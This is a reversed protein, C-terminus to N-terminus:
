IVKKRLKLMDSSIKSEIVQSRALLKKSVKYDTCIKAKSSSDLIHQAHLIKFM